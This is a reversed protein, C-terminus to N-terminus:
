TSISPRSNLGHLLPPFANLYPQGTWFAPIGEIVINKALVDSLASYLQVFAYLDFQPLTVVFVGQNCKKGVEIVPLMKAIFTADGVLIVDNDDVGRAKRLESLLRPANASLDPM